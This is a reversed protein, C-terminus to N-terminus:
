KKAAQTLIKKLYYCVKHVQGEKLKPYLPLSVTRNGIEFAAPFDQPKYGFIRRFYTLSHVPTYNVAVGVGNEQMKEIVLDRKIRKPVLVTFLHHGSVEDPGPLEMFDLGEIDGLLRRYLMELGQRKKRFEDLRNVQNVLLAAQVDSMNYKWGMMRMDWHKYKKTYRSAADKTIGHHRASRYWGADLSSCILAGGEGCTLSKTPYFSFCAAASLQGPRVGGRMGEICHAADEIIALNRKAAVKHMGRMDVMRGYLHVPLIAKTKKTISREVADPTLLGSSLSVDTFVPKAGSELIATATAVFTMPTTIVEDGKGVGCHLLSLHLAGTCSTLGVAQPSKMYSAFRQEFEAVKPGTTLFTSNLVKKLSDIDKECINHRFFEIRKKM